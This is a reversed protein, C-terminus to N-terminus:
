VEKDKHSQAPNKIIEKLAAKVIEWAEIRLLDYSPLHKTMEELLEAARARMEKPNYGIYCSIYYRVQAKIRKKASAPFCKKQRWVETLLVEAAGSFRSVSEWFIFEKKFAQTFVDIIKQM